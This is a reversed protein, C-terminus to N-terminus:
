KRAAAVAEDLSAFLEPEGEAEAKALVDRVQGIGHALALEVDERQWTPACSWWCRARGLRRAVALDRRRHVVPRTGDTHAPGARPRPRLRRQRLVAPGGGTRRAVAPGRRPPRPPRRRGLARPRGAGPRARGRPASLHARGAPRALGRHRHGARAPHRLGARGLLAAVAAIFDARSTYRYISASGGADAGPLAAAALRHRGARDGRRDRRGRADGRAAERVARDPVAPHGRHARRGHRGLAAVQRGAGGNVATKSLSGNVVMGSALGSGLNAVGLGLLERNSDVRLRGQRRLDEGRGPGRRLRGADRGRRARGPRPLRQAASTPFARLVPLGPTITGVLELGHDGLDFVTAVLSASCRRRGALGAGEAALAAAGAAAGPEGARRGPHAAPTGSSPSWTGSSRSSTAARGEGRRVAQAAPGVLITLALGIIFGKLVPESIM